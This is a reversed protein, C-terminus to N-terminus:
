SKLCDAKFKKKAKGKLGKAAAQEACNKQKEAKSESTSPAGAAPTGPTAADAKPAVESPPKWQTEAYASAGFLLGTFVGAALFRKISM